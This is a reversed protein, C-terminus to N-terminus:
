PYGWYIFPDEINIFIGGDTDTSYGIRQLVYEDSSPSNLRSISINVGDTDPMRGYLSVGSPFSLGALTCPGAGCYSVAEGEAASNLAIGICKEYHANTPAYVYLKGDTFLSVLNGTQIDEGAEYTTTGDALADGSLEIVQWCEGGEECEGTPATPPIASFDFREANHLRLKTEVKDLDREIGVVVYERGDIVTVSGLKLNHYSDAGDATLRFGSLFPVTLSYETEFYKGDRKTLFNVYESLTRFSETSGGINATLMWFPRWAAYDDEEDASRGYEDDGIQKYLRETTRGYILRHITGFRGDEDGSHTIYTNHLLQTGRVEKVGDRALTRAFVGPYYRARTYTYEIGGGGPANINPVKYHFDNGKEWNYQPFIGHESTTLDAITIGSSLLLENSNKVLKKIKSESKEFTEYTRFPYRDIGKNGSASQGLAPDGDIAYANSYGVYADKDMSYVTPETTLGASEVDRIYLAKTEGEADKTILARPLFTIHTVGEDDVTLDAYMGFSRAIEFLLKTFTQSKYFSQTEEGAAPDVLRFSVHPSENEAQDQGFRLEKTNTYRELLRKIGWNDRYTNPAGDLGRKELIDEPVIEPTFFLVPIDTTEFTTALTSDMGEIVDLMKRLLANLNVLQGFKIFTEWGLEGMGPTYNWPHYANRNKVWTDIWSDTWQGFSNVDETSAKWADMVDIIKKELKVVAYNKATLKWVRLPAPTTGYQSGHWKIDEADGKSNLIGRFALAGDAYLLCYRSITDDLCDLIFDFAAQDDTTRCATQDITLQLEDVGQMGEATDLDSKFTGVRVFDIMTRADYDDGTFLADYDDSLLFRFTITGKGSELRSWIQEYVTAMM